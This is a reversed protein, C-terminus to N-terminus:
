KQIMSTNHALSTGMTYCVITKGTIFRYAITLATENMIDNM